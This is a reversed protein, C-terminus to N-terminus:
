DDDEEEEHGMNTSAIASFAEPHRIKGGEQATYALFGSTVLSTILMAGHFYAQASRPLRSTTALGVLGLVGLALTFALASDASEEHSELQSESVGPLEEVAEEASEGTLFAATAFLASAVFLASGLKSFHDTKRILATALLIAGLPVLIIPLHVVMLHLHVSNM